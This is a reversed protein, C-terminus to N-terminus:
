DATMGLQLYQSFQAKRIYNLEERSENQYRALPRTYRNDWEEGTEAMVEELFSLDLNQRTHSEIITTYRRRLCRVDALYEESTLLDPNTLVAFRLDWGHKRIKELELCARSYIVLSNARWGQDDRHSHAKQSLLFLPTSMFKQYAAHRMECGYLLVKLDSTVIEAWEEVFVM